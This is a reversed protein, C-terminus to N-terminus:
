QHLVEISLDKVKELVEETVDEKIWKIAEVSSDTDIEPYYGNYKINKQLM